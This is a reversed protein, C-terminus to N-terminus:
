TPVGLHPPIPVWAAGSTGPPHQAKEPAKVELAAKVTPLDAGAGSGRDRGGPSARWRPRAPIKLGM